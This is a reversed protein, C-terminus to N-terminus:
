APKYHLLQEGILGSPATGQKFYQSAYWGLTPISVADTNCATQLLESM